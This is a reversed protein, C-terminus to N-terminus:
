QKERNGNEWPSKDFDPADQWYHEVGFSAERYGTLCKNRVVGVADTRSIGTLQCLYVVKRMAEELSERACKEEEIQEKTKVPLRGM